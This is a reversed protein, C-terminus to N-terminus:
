GQAPGADYWIPTHPFSGSLTSTPELPGGAVPEYYTPGPFVCAGAATTGCGAVIWQATSIPVYTQGGQVVTQLSYAPDVGTNPPTAPSQAPNLPAGAIGTPAFGEGLQVFHVGNALDQALTNTAVTTTTTPAVTTATTPPVTTTPPPAAPTACAPSSSLPGAAGGASVAQVVACDQVGVRLGTFTATTTNVQDRHGQTDTVSYTAAQTGGIPASWSVIISANGPSVRVGTPQGPPGAPVPTTPPRSGAPAPTPSVVHTPAPMDNVSAGPGAVPPVKAPSAPAVAPSVPATATSTQHGAVAAATGTDAPVVSALPQEPDYKEIPVQTGNPEIASAQPGDANNAFVLGGGVTLDTVGGPPSLAQSLTANSLNVVEVQQSSANLLYADNGNMVAQTVRAGEPLSTTESTGDGLNAEVALTGEISVLNPSSPSAAVVPIVNGNRKFHVTSGPKSVCTAMGSSADVAAVCTSTDGVAIADDRQGVVRHAAVKSGEIETVAGQGPVAAWLDGQPDTVAESISSHLAVARGVPRLTGPDVQQVTGSSRDVVYSRGEGTVVELNPAHLGPVMSSSSPRLKAGDIRVLRGSREDVVYAGDPRQVVTFPDGAQVGSGVAASVKGSYGDALSVTGTRANALWAQGNL